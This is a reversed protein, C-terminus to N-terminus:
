KQSTKSRTRSSPTDKGKAKANSLNKPTENTVPIQEEPDETRRDEDTNHKTNNTINSKKPTENKTCNLFCLDHKRDHHDELIMETDQYQYKGHDTKMDVDDEQTDEDDHECMDTSIHTLKSSPEKTGDLMDDAHTDFDIPQSWTEQTEKNNYVFQIRDVEDDTYTSTYAMKAGTEKM